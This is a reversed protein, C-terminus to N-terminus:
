GWTLMFQMVDEEREFLIWGKAAFFIGPYCNDYVWQRIPRNFWDDDEDLPPWEKEDLDIRAYWSTDAPLKTIKIAMQSYIGNSSGTHPVPWPLSVM